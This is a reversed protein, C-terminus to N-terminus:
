VAKGYEETTLPNDSVSISLYEPYITSTIYQALDQTPAIVDVAATYFTVDEDDQMPLEVFVKWVYGDQLHKAYDVIVDAKMQTKM